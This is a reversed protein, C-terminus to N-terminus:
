CGCPFFDCYRQTPKRRRGQYDRDYGLRLVIHAAYTDIGLAMGCIFHRYGDEIAKIIEIKLRQKLNECRPDTEVQWPLNKPRSGTFCCTKM